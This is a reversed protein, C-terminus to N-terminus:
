HPGEEGRIGTRFHTIGMYKGKSRATPKVNIEYLGISEADQGTFM